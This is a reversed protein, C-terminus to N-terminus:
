EQENEEVSEAESMINDAKHSIVAAAESESSVSTDATTDTAGNPIEAADAVEPIVKDPIVSAESAATVATDPMQAAVSPIPRSKPSPREPTNEAPKIERAPKQVLAASAKLDVVYTDLIKDHWGRNKDDILIWIYGLLFVSESSKKVLVERFLMKWFGVPEGDRASVVQLGLATKGISSSRNFLILQFVIYALMLIFAIVLAAAAGGSVPRSYGYGYGFEPMGFGYGFNQRFAYERLAEAVATIFVILCSVAPVAADICAAGFRKGRSALKMVRRKSM